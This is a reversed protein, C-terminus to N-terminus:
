PFIQFVETKDPVETGAGEKTEAPGAGTEPPKPRVGIVQNLPGYEGGNVPKRVTLMTRIEEVSFDTESLNLIIRTAQGDNVKGSITNRIKELPRQKSPTYCDFIEGEIRYDPDKIPNLHDSPVLKPIHEVRYGHRALVDAAENQRRVDRKRDASTQLEPDEPTGTPKGGKEGTPKVLPKLSTARGAAGGARETLSVVSAKNAIPHSGLTRPSAGPRAAPAPHAGRGVAATAYAPKQARSTNHRANDLAQNKKRNFENQAQQISEDTHREGPKHAPAPGVRGGAPRAPGGARRAQAAQVARAANVGRAFAAQKEPSLRRLGAAAAKAAGRGAGARGVPGGASAPTTVSHLLHFSRTDFRTVAGAGDTFRTLEGEADYGFALGTGGEREVAVLRGLADHAFRVARGAGDTLAGLNGQADYGATLTRGLPTEAAALRGAEDLYLRAEQGAGDALVLCDGDPDAYATLLPAPSAPSTVLLRGEPTLARAMAGGKAHYRAVAIPTEADFILRQQM